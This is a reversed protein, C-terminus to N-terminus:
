KSRSDFIVGNDRWQHDATRFGHWVRGDETLGVVHILGNADVGGSVRRLGPAQLAIGNNYWTGIEDRYIHAVGGGGALGVVQMLGGADRFGFLSRLEAGGIPDRFGRMFKQQGPLWQGSAIHREVGRFEGGPAQLLFYLYRDDRTVAYAVARFEAPFEDRAWFLNGEGSRASLSLEYGAVQAGGALGLLIVSESDPHPVLCLDALSESLPEIESARWRSDAGRLLYLSRGGAEQDFLVAHLRGAADSVAALRPTGFDAKRGVRPVAQAGGPASANWEYVTGNSIWSGDPTQYAHWLGLTGEAQGARRVGFAAPPATRRLALIQLLRDDSKAVIQVDLFEGGSPLAIKGSRILDQSRDQGSGLLWGAAALIPVFLAIGCKKM